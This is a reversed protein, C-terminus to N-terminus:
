LFVFMCGELVLASFSHVLQFLVPHGGLHEGLVESIESSNHYSSKSIYFFCFVFFQNSHWYILFFACSRSSTLIFLLAPNLLLHYLILLSHWLLFPTSFLPSLAMKCATVTFPHSLRYRYINRSFRLGPLAPGNKLHYIGVLSIGNSVSFVCFRFDKVLCTHTNGENWLLLLKTGTTKGRFAFDVVLPQLINRWTNSKSESTCSYLLLDCALSATQM